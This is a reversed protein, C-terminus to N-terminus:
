NKTYNIYQTSDPHKPCEIAHQYQKEAQQIQLHNLEAMWRTLTANRFILVWYNRGSCSSATDSSKSGKERSSCALHKVSIIQQGALSRMIRHCRMKLSKQLRQPLHDQLKYGYRQSPSFLPKTTKHNGPEATSTNPHLHKPRWAPESCSLPLPQHQTLFTTQQLAEHCFQVIKNRTRLSLVKYSM